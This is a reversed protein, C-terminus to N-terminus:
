GKIENKYKEKVKKAMNIYDDLEKKQIIKDPLTEPLYLIIVVAIFLFLSAIPFLQTMFTANAPISPTLLHLVVIKTPTAIVTACLSLAIWITRNAPRCVDGWLVLLFLVTLIGWAVGDIVTFYYLAGQSFSILAYNAGLYAFSFMMMKKRGYIDMLVGGLLITALGLVQSTIPLIQYYQLPIEGISHFFSLFTAALIDSILFIGWVLLFSFKIRYSTKIYEVSESVLKFEKIRLSLFISFIKLVVLIIALERLSNVLITFVFLITYILSIFIGSTSGRNNFNTKSLFAALINAIGIGSIVGGIISYIIIGIEGQLPLYLSFGFALGSISSLIQLRRNYKERWYAGIIMSLCTALAMLISFLTASQIYYFGFLTVQGILIANSIL